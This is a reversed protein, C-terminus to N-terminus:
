KKIVKYLKFLAYFYLKVWKVLLLGTPYSNSNVTIRSIEKRLAAYDMLTLHFEPEM